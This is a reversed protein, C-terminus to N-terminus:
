SKYKEYLEPLIKALRRYEECCHEAMGRATEDTLIIKRLVPNKLRQGIWFHSLLFLGKDDKKFIHAMETHMVGVAGVHACVILPIDNEEMLRKSFGFSEATKFDITLPMILKGIREVPYQKNEEFEPMKECKFYGKNKRSYSVAYHEKPFWMRYRESKQPHWWFWWNIMEETVGEMPCTMSVLYTGDYLRTFGVENQLKENKLIENKNEFLTETINNEELKTKIDKPFEFFSKKM